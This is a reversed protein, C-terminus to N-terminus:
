KLLEKIKKIIEKETKCQYLFRQLKAQCRFFDVWPNGINKTKSIRELTVWPILNILFNTPGANTKIAYKKLNNVRSDEKLIMELHTIGLGHFFKSKIKLRALQEKVTHYSTKSRKTKEAIQKRNLIGLSRILLMTEDYAWPTRTRNDRRLKKFKPNRYCVTIIGIITGPRLNKFHELTKKKGHKIYYKFVKERLHKYKTIRKRYTGNKYGLANLKTTVQNVSLNLKEAIEKNTYLGTKLLEILKDEYEKSKRKPM